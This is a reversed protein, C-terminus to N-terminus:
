FKFVVPFSTLCITAKWFGAIALTFIFIFLQLHMGGNNKHMIFLLSSVANVAIYIVSVNLVKVLFTLETVQKRKGFYPLTCDM